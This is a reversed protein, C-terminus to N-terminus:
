VSERLGLLCALRQLVDQWAVGPSARMGWHFRMGEHHLLDEGNTILGGFAQAAHWPLLRDVVVELAVWGQLEKLHRHWRVFSNIPDQFAM